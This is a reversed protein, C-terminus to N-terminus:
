NEKETRSQFNLAIRFKSFYIKWSNLKLDTDFRLQVTAVTHSDLGTGHFSKYLNRKNTVFKKTRYMGM